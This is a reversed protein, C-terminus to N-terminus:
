HSSHFLQQMIGAEKGMETQRMKKKKLELGFASNANKSFAATNCLHKPNAFCLQKGSTSM